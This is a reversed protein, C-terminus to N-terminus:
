YGHMVDDVTTEFSLRAGEDEDLSINAFWYLPLLLKKEMYSEYNTVNQATMTELCSARSCKLCIM